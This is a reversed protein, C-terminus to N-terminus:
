AAKADAASLETMISELYATCLEGYSPPKSANAEARFLAVTDWQQQFLEPTEITRRLWENLARACLAADPINTAPANMKQIRQKRM